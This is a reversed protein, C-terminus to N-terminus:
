VPEKRIEWNLKPGLWGGGTSSAFLNERATSIFESFVISGHCNWFEYGPDRIPTRSLGRDPPGSGLSTM